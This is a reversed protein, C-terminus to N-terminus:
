ANYVPPANNFVPTATDRPASFFDPLVTDTNGTSINATSNGAASTFAAWESEAADPLHENGEFPDFLPSVDATTGTIKQQASITAAGRPAASKNAGANRKGATKTGATSGTTDNRLHKSSQGTDQSSSLRRRERNRRTRQRNGTTHNQHNHRHLSSSRSSSNGSDSSYSSQDESSLSATVGRHDGGGSHHQTNPNHHRRHTTQKASASNRSNHQRRNAADSSDGASDVSSGKSSAYSHSNVGAASDRGDGEGWMNVGDRGSSDDRRDKSRRHTDVPAFTGTSSQGERPEYPDYKDSNRNVTGRDTAGREFDANYTFGPGTREGQVGYGVYRNRNKRAKEREQKLLTSDNLMEQMEKAKKRIGAGKDVGQDSYHFDMFTKLRHLSRPERTDEIVRDAGNKLLYDLLTLTKFIRRWKSPKDALCEWVMRMVTFYDYYDFSARAIEALVTTGCGWNTNATAERLSKELPTGRDMYAEAQEKIKSTASRMLKGVQTITDEM